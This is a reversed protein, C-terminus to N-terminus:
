NSSAYNMGFKSKGMKMGHPRTQENKLLAEELKNEVKLLDEIESIIKVLNPYNDFKGEMPYDSPWSLVMRPKILYIKEINTNCIFKAADRFMRYISRKHEDSLIKETPIKFNSGLIITLVRVSQMSELLKNLFQFIEFDEEVNTLILEHFYGTNLISRFYVPLRLWDDPLWEWMALNNPIRICYANFSNEWKLWFHYKTLHEAEFHVGSPFLYCFYNFDGVEIRSNEEYEGPVGHCYNLHSMADEDSYTHFSELGLNCSARHIFMPAIYKRNQNNLKYITGNFLYIGFHAYNFLFHCVRNKWILQLYKETISCHNDALASQKLYIWIRDLQSQTFQMVTANANRTLLNINKIQCAGMYCQITGINENSSLEEVVKLNPLISGFSEIFYLRVQYIQRGPCYQQSSFHINIENVVTSKHKDVFYQYVSPDAKLTMMLRTKNDILYENNLAEAINFKDIGNKMFCKNKTNFYEVYDVYNGMGNDAIEDVDKLISEREKKFAESFRTSDERLYEALFLTQNLAFTKKEQECFASQNSSENVKATEEAEKADEELKIKKSDTVDEESFSRTKSAASFKEEEVKISPFKYGRKQYFDTIYNKDCEMTSLILYISILVKNKHQKTQTFPLNQLYSYSHVYFSHHTIKM